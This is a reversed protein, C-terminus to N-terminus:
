IFVHFCWKGSNVDPIMYQLSKILFAHSNQSSSKKQNFFDHTQSCSSLGFQHDLIEEWFECATYAQITIGFSCFFSFFTITRHNNNSYNNLLYTLIIINETCGKEGVKNSSTSSSSTWSHHRCKM